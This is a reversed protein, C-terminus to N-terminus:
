IKKLKKLIKYNNKILHRKIRSYQVVHVNM